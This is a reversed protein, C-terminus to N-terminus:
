ALDERFLEREKRPRKKETEDDDQDPKEHRSRRVSEITSVDFKPDLFRPAYAGRIVKEVIRDAESHDLLCLVELAEWRPIGYETRVIEELFKIVEEKYKVNQLVNFSNPKWPWFDCIHALRCYEKADATVLELVEFHRDVLDVLARGAQERLTKEEFPRNYVAILRLGEVAEPTPSLSASKRAIQKRARTSHTTNALTSSSRQNQTRM